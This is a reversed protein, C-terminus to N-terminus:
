SSKHFGLLEGRSALDRFQIRSLKAKNLVGRSRGSLVCRNRIRERATDKPLFGLELQHHYRQDGQIRLDQALAKVLKRKLEFREVRIRKNKDRKVSSKQLKKM